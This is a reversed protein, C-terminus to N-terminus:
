FVFHIGGRLGVAGQSWNSFDDNRYTGEAFVGWKANLRAELGARGVYSWKTSDQWNYVGDVGVYPALNKLIPTSYSLPVRFVLGAQVEDVSVGKTQYFPVSAEFGLNRWPFWFAGASLNFNYPQQFLTKGNVTSAAGVDYASSLSLGLEGANFLSSATQTTATTKATATTDAAFASTVLALACLTGVIWKTINRM